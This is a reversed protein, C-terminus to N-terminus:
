RRISDFYSRELARIRNRDDDVIAKTDAVLYINGPSDKLSRTKVILDRDKITISHLSQIRSRWFEISSESGISVENDSIMFVCAARSRLRCRSQQILDSFWEPNLLASAFISFESRGLCRAYVSPDAGGAPRGGIEILTPVGNDFIIESHSIGYEFGIAFLISRCYTELVAYLESEEVPCILELYDHVFNGSIQRKYVRVITTVYHCGDFSVANVNYVISDAKNPSTTDSLYRQVLVKDNEKGITTLAGLIQEFATRVEHDSACVFVNDSSSSDIPKLVVPYRAQNRVWAIAEEVNDTCTQEIHPLGADAIVSQMIFKDRCRRATGVPNKYGVGLIHAIKEAIEVGSEAGPLVIMPNFAGLANPTDKFEDYTMEHVFDSPRYTNGYLYPVTDSTRIHICDFGHAIFASPFFRGTSYADTFIIANKKYIM